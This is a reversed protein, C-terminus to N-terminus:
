PLLRRSRSGAAIVSPPEKTVWVLGPLPMLFVDAASGVAVGM